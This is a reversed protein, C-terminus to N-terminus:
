SSEKIDESNQPFKATERLKSLELLLSDREAELDKVVKGILEIQSSDREAELELENMRKSCNDIIQSVKELRVKLAGSKVERKRLDEIPFIIGLRIMLFQYTRRVSVETIGSAYGINQQPIHDGEIRCSIYLAAAALSSPRRGCTVHKEHATALLKKALVVSSTSVSLGASELKSTIEDVLEIDSRM